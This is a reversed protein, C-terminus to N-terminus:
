EKILELATQYDVMYGYVECNLDVAMQNIKYRRENRSMLHPHENLYKIQARYAEVEQNLRFKPDRLYKNWWKKPSWLKQQEIHTQEHALLDASISNKSHITDGYVICIGSNWDIDLVKKIEDYIKPKKTSINM